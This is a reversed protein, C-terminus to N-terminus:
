KKPPRYRGNIYHYILQHKVLCEFTHTLILPSTLCKPIRFITSLAFWLRRVNLTLFFYRLIRFFMGLRQRSFGNGRAKRKGVRSMADVIRKTFNKYNYLESVLRQHGDILQEVTMNNPTINTASGFFGAKPSTLDLELLRGKRQMRKYLPTGPLAVLVGVKTVPIGSAMIFDFQEQFIDTDDNDFGVIMSASIFIGKSQIKWIDDLLSRVANQRKKVELLSEKRPTEIGIFCNEFGAEEMLSLLEDDNAIDISLETSFRLHYGTNRKFTALEKLLAKARAKDGAFNDDSFFFQTHGLQRVKEIETIIQKSTKYRTKNGHIIIADCFECVFPCGRSAQVCVYSYKNLKLLDYRPTPSDILNVFGQQHYESQQQGARYDRLFQPWTYEAEGVFIVDVHPRCAEPSTTVYPGGMVVLKGRRRFEAAIQVARHFQVNWVSLGVIDYDGDFDIPEVCEDCLQVEFEPPTLAAITPLGLPNSIWSKGILKQLVSNGWETDPFTPNILYVKPM